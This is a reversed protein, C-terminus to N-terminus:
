SSKLRTWQQAVVFSGCDTTSRNEFLVSNNSTESFRRNQCRLIDSRSAKVTPSKRTAKLLDCVSFKAFTFSSIIRCSVAKFLTSTINDSNLVFISVMCVGISLRQFWWCDWSTGGVMWLGITSSTKWCSSWCIPCGAAVDVGLDDTLRSAFSAKNSEFFATSTSRVGVVSSTGTGAWTLSCRLFSLRCSRFNNLKKKKEALFKNNRSYSSTRVHILFIWAVRWSSLMDVMYIDNRFVTWSSTLVSQECTWENLHLKWIDNHFRRGNRDTNSSDDADCAGLFVLLRLWILVPQCVNEGIMARHHHEPLPRHWKGLPLYRCYRLERDRVITSIAFTQLPTSPNFDAQM